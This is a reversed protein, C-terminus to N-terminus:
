SKINSSKSYRWVRNHVALHHKKNTQKNTQKNEHVPKGLLVQVPSKNELLLYCSEAAFEQPVIGELNM